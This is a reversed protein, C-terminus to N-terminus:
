RPPDQQTLWKALTKPDIELKEAALTKRGGLEEVAWAVYQRQIERLPVVPGAFRPADGARAELSAPLLSADAEASRGLLVLREVVHALERVNGPFPHELLRQVVDRGLREVPSKPNRARAEALFLAVLEPIDERRHRLPPIEITVVDLRYLLDERFAGEAVRARLDRHTAAIFRVDVEREVNAGLARVRRRELV